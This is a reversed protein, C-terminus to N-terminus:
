VNYGERELFTKMKNRTRHLMVAVNNESCNHSKAINKISEGFYYRRLFISREEGHISRIFRNIIDKLIVSDMERTAASDPICEALEDLLVMVGSRKKAQERELYHLATNRATKALYARLYKPKAPPISNWAKLWVDNLAEEADQINGLLGAIIRRCFGGYQNEMQKIAQEDRQWLLKVIEDM